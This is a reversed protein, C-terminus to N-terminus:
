LTITARAPLGTGVVASLQRVALEIAAPLTGFDAFQEAEGYLTHPEDAEIVRLVEGGFLVEVEYAEREEGLRVERADFDDGGVRTRRIWRIAVDGTVAARRATLRVPALPVLGRAGVRATLAEYTLDNRPRSAPGARWALDLGRMEPGVTSAPTRDDILVFAAGVPTADGIADETGAQGRLLTTLRWRGPSTLAADRFQLVEWVGGEGRVAARNAGGLVARESRSELARDLGIEVELANTCDFRGSDHRGLPATLRGIVAPRRLVLDLEFREGDDSRLVAVPGWPKSYTALRPAHPASDDFAPLDLVEFVPRTAQSREPPPRRTSSLREVDRADPDARTAKVPRVHEDGIEDLRFLTTRRHAAFAVLDGPELALRSPPLTFAGRERAVSAEILLGDALAQAEDEALALAFSAESVARGEGALRRAEVAGQRYDAEPDVHRLKLTEPVESAQARTLRFAPKGEGIDALDDLTLAAVPEPWQNAIRIAAGRALAQAGFADILPEIADRPSMVRDLTYGRVLGDLNQLDLAVGLGGAIDAM